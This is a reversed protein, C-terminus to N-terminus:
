KKFGNVFGQLEARTFKKDGIVLFAARGNKYEYYIDTRDAVPRRYQLKLVKEQEPLSRIASEGFALKKQAAGMESPRVARDTTSGDEAVEAVKIPDDRELKLQDAKSYDKAKRLLPMNTFHRSAVGPLLKEQGIWRLLDLEVSFGVMEQIDIGKEEAVRVIAAMRVLGEAVDTAAQCFERVLEKASLKSFKAVLMELNSQKQELTM